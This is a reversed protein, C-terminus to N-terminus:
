TPLVRPCAEAEAVEVLSLCVAEVVPVPPPTPFVDGDSAVEVGSRTAAPPLALPRM